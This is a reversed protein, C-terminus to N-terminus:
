LEENDICKLKLGFIKQNHESYKNIPYFNSQSNSDDIDNLDSDNCPRTKIETFYTEIDESFVKKYMKLTGIEPDETTDVTPDISIVAAAVQFGDDSTFVDSESFYYKQKVESLQFDNSDLLDRFKFSGYSAIILITLIGLCTGFYNRYYESNDPMLFYFPRKSIDM